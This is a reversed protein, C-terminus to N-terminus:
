SAFSLSSNVSPVFEVLELEELRIAMAGNSVNFLSAMSRFPVGYFSDASAIIRSLDRLNRCKLLFSELRGGNLAFVTDDNPIFKGMSFIQEFVSRVQKEPMLFYTAFKDAQFEIRDRAMNGDSGDLPRDRHLVTQKHILAHGLEHALTFNQIDVPYLTSIGVAKKVNDIIGAIEVFEGSLQYPDLKERKFVKYKLLKEFAIQPQLIELPNEPKKRKWITDRYKWLMNQVKKAVAEIERNSLDRINLKYKELVRVDAQLAQFENVENELVIQNDNALSLLREYEVKIEKSSRQITEIWSEDDISLRNLNIISLCGAIGAVASHLAVGSDGRASRFAYNFIFNADDALEICLKAVGILTETASKLADQAKRDLDKGRMFGSENDRAVRLQIASDFQESDQQFLTQLVPYIRDNITSAMEKLQPLISRYVNARKGESTLNIVTLILQASLMGQLAAASGSGPVHSGVGFKELLKETPLEILKSNM